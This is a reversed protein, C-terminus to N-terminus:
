QGESPAAGDPSQYDDIAKLARNINDRMTVMMDSEADDNGRYPELTTKVCELTFVAASHRALHSSTESFLHALTSNDLAIPGDHTELPTTEVAPLALTTTKTGPPLKALLQVAEGQNAAIIIAPHDTKAIGHFLRSTHGCQRKTCFHNALKGVITLITKLTM